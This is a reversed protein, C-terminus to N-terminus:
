GKMKEVLVFYPRHNTFIHGKIDLVVLGLGILILLLGWFAKHVHYGFIVTWYKEPVDLFFVKV